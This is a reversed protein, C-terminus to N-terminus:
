FLVVEEEFLPVVAKVREAASAGVWSNECVM